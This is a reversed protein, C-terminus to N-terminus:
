RVMGKDEKSHLRSKGGEIEKDKKGKKEVRSFHYMLLSFAIAFAILLAARSHELMLYIAVFIFCGATLLWFPDRKQKM